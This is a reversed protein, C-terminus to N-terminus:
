EEETPDVEEKKLTLKKERGQIVLLEDMGSFVSSAEDQGCTRPM